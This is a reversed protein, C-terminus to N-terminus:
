NSCSLCVNLCQSRLFWIFSEQSLKKDKHVLNKWVSLIRFKIALVYTFPLCFLVHGFDKKKKKLSPVSM